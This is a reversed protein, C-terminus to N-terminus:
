GDKIVEKRAELAAKKNPYGILSVNGQDDKWHWKSGRRHLPYRPDDM